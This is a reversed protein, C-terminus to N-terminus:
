PLGGECELKTVLVTHAYENVPLNRLRLYYQPQPVPRGQADMRLTPLDALSCEVVEGTNLLIAKAPMQAIPKLLVRRTTPFRQLHVYLTNGKRTLLVDRNETLCSAPEAGLFAEKVTHYWRGITLLLRVAEEPIVGEATPGM